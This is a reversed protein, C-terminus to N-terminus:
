FYYVKFIAWGPTLFQYYYEIEALSKKRFDDETLLGFEHRKKQHDVFDNITTVEEDVSKNINALNSIPPVRNSDKNLADKLEWIEDIILNLCNLQETLFVFKSPTLFQFVFDDRDKLPINKLQQSTIKLAIARKKEYEEFKATTSYPECNKIEKEKINLPEPLNKM